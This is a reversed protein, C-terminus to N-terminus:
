RSCCSSRLQHIHQDKHQTTPLAPSSSSPLIHTEPCLESWLQVGTWFRLTCPLCNAQCCMYYLSCLRTAQPGEGSRCDRLTAPTRSAPNFHAQFSSQSAEWTLWMWLKIKALCRSTPDACHFTNATRTRPVPKVQCPSHYSVKLISRLARSHLIRSASQSFAAACLPCHAHSHNQVTPLDRSAQHFGRLAATLVRPWSMHQCPSRPGLWLRLLSSVSAERRSLPAGRSRKNTESKM